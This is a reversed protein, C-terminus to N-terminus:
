QYTQKGGNNEEARKRERTKIGYEKSEIEGVITRKLYLFLTFLLFDYGQPKGIYAAPTDATM